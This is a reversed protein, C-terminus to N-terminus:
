RNSNVFRYAVEETPAKAYLQICARKKKCYNQLQQWVLIPDKPPSIFDAKEDTLEEM